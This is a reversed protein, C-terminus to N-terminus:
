PAMAATLDGANDDNSIEWAWLGRLKDQRVLRARDAVAHPDVYSIFTGGNLTPNYLWPAKATGNFYRTFGNLGKGDNGISSSRSVAPPGIPTLNADALGTDVLDHYTPSDNSPAAAHPQYLGNNAGPVGVYEKGYFPVGVVLKDPAVGNALYYDVTGATNWTSQIAAGGVPPEKPDLSFPSNFDTMSDFSGHFDFTLLNVWDLSQAVSSLEWSGSSNVNGAPLDATLLYHKGTTAGYADLQSRFEQFLLTANHVDAPSHDAGNGPDIGPYEWDIDIGDFVGAAAGTGGASPPWIAAPDYPLNGKILLDICSAVFAQRTAATAAVDSFYKSLTWGGISMVVHLDPHAQRLKLLQNFNGFLHQNPNSPDDAVGDVSTDGSWTPAEYDSWADSLGCTGAATPAAFAYDLVNLKDAPIQKVLYGRAYRSWNTFFAARVDAPAGAARAANPAAPRAAAGATVAVAALLVALAVIPVRARM